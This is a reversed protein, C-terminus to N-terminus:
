NQIGEAPMYDGSKYIKRPPVIDEIHTDSLDSVQMKEKYYEQALDLQERTYGV